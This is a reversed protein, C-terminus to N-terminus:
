HDNVVPPGIEMHGADVFSIDVRQFASSRIGEPSDRATAVKLKIAVQKQILDSLLQRQFARAAFMSNAAASDSIGSDSNVPIQLVTLRILARSYYMPQGCAFYVLGALIGIAFCVLM